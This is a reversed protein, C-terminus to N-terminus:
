LRPMRYRGLLAEVSHPLAYPRDNEIPERREYFHSFLLLVARLLGDPAEGPAYGVEADIRVGGVPAHPRPWPRTAALRAGEGAEVAYAEADVDTWVGPATEVAAAAISVLPSLPLSLTREPARDYVARITRISLARGTRAEAADRAAAVCSAVYADGADSELRLHRKAEEVSVPEAVPPVLVSYAV